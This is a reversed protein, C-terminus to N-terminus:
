QIDINQETYYGTNGAKWSLKLTYKGKALKEKPIRMYGEADAYVNLKRDKAADTSCYFWAQGNLSQGKLESPFRISFDAENQATEVGSLSAAHRMGDIKDQYRLEEQYYDKSVLDYKVNIAKYVLTGILGAFAIFVLILKNGWNM